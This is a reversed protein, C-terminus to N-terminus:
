RLVKFWFKTNWTRLKATLANLKAIDFALYNLLYNEGVIDIYFLLIM